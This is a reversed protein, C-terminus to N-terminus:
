KSDEKHAINKLHERVKKPFIKKIAEETTLHKDHKLKKPM